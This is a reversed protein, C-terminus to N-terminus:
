KAPNGVAISYPPIDRTVITGAGIVAGNGVTVNPLLITGDGVWVNNGIKVRGKKLISEGFLETYFQCQLGLLDTRHNATIIRIDGGFACYKGITVDGKITLKGSFRTHEGVALTGWVRPFDVFVVGKGVKLNNRYHLMALLTIVRTKM